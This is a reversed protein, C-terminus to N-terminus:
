GRGTVDVADSGDGGGAADTEPRRYNRTGAGPQGANGDATLSHLIALDELIGRTNREAASAPRSQNSRAQFLPREEERRCWNRWTAFWDAKVGKSGPAARWYDCFREWVSSTRKDDWGLKDSFQLWGYPILHGDSSGYLYADLRQGRERTTAKTPKRASESPSDTENVPTNVPTKTQGNPGVKTQGNPGFQKAREGLRYWYTRNMPGYSYTGREILKHELLKEIANRIQKEGLYPLLKMWAARSNYTWAYGDRVNEGNAENKAVWHEINEFIIAAELGVEKAVEVNFVHNM